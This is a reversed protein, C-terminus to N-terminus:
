SDGSIYPDKEGASPKEERDVNQDTDKVVCCGRM